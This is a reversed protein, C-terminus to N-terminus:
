EESSRLSDRKKILESVRKKLPDTTKKALEHTEEITPNQKNEKTQQTTSKGKSGGFGLINFSSGDQETNSHLSMYHPESHAQRVAANFTLDEQAEKQKEREENKALAGEFFSRRSRVRKIKEFYISEDNVVGNNHRQIHDRISTALETLRRISFDKTQETLEQLTESSPCIINEFMNSDYMDSLYQRVSSMYDTVIPNKTAAEDSQVDKSLADCQRRLTHVLTDFMNIDADITPPPTPDDTAVILKHFQKKIAINTERIDKFHKNLNNKIQRNNSELQTVYADLEHPNLMPSQMTIFLALIRKRRANDDLEPVHIIRTDIFRTSLNTAEIKELFNTALLVRINSRYEISDLGVCVETLANEMAIRLNDKTGESSMKDAEDLLLVIKEPNERLSAFLKKVIIAASNQYTNLLSGCSIYLYKSNTEYAMYKAITTKGSGHPGYLIIRNTLPSHRAFGKNPNKFEETLTRVDAPFLEEEVDITTIIEPKPITTPDPEPSGTAYTFLSLSLTLFLQHIIIRTYM